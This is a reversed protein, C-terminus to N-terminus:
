RGLLSVLYNKFNPNGQVLKEVIAMAQPDACAIFHCDCERQCVPCHYDEDLATGCACFPEMVLQDEEMRAVLYDQQRAKLQDFTVPM